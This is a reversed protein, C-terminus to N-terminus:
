ALPENFLSLTGIAGDVRDAKADAADDFFAIDAEMSSTAEPPLDDETFSGLMSQSGIVLVDPEGAIASSARLIHELQERTMGCAGPALSRPIGRPRDGTGARQPRRRVPQEATAGRRASVALHPRRFGRRRRQRPNGAVPGALSRDNGSPSGAQSAPPEQDGRDTGGAPRPGPARRGRPAAVLVAGPGQHSGPEDPEDCGRPARAPTVRGVRVPAGRARVPRSCAPTLM